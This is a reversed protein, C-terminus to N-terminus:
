DEIEILEKLRQIRTTTVPLLPMKMPENFKLRLNDIANTRLWKPRWIATGEPKEQMNGVIDVRYASM